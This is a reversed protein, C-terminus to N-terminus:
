DKYVTPWTLGECVADALVELETKTVHIETSFIGFKLRQMLVWTRAEELRKFLPCKGAIRANECNLARKLPNEANVYVECAMCPIGNKAKSKM